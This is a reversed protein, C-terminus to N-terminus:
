LWALGPLVLRRPTGGGTRTLTLVMLPGAAGPGLAVLGAQALPAFAPAAAVGAPLALHVGAIAALGAPHQLRGARGDTWRRPPESGPSRFLLPQRPDDCATAMPITLGPPLFPAAYTWTPFPLDATADRARLAIGFPSAGTRRWDAREALRTRAVAPATIEGRDVQWILELFANDFCFCANSTGQGAHRRRFSEILGLDALARPAAGDPPVFVLVHDLELGNL